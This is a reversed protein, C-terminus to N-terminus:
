ALLNEIIALLEDVDLPKSIGILHREEIEQQHQTLSNTVIITPINALGDITHLQDYLTIGTATLLSLDLLFLSPKIHQLTELACLSSSVILMHYPTKQGTAQLLSTTIDDDDEVIAVVKIPSVNEPSPLKQKM